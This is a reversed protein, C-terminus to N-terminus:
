SSAAISQVALASAERVAPFDASAIWDRRVMWSGSVAWISPHALYERANAANVGGSPVFRSGPFPAALAEITGLGGLRDAPFFKIVDVGARTARQLETATAIGPLVAMGLSLAREVVEPDFGPSVIFSAGADACQEVQEPSIVTGAGALFGARSANRLASLGAPTRLTFEACGIGGEALADVLDGARDADDIVVVPIIRADRLGELTTQATV